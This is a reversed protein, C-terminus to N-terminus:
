LKAELEAVRAMLGKVAAMLYANDMAYDRSLKHGAPAFGDSDKFKVDDNKTALVADSRGNAMDEQAIFGAQPRGDMEYTRPRAKNIWAYAQEASLDKVESKLRADSTTGFATAAVAGACLISCGLGWTGVVQGSTIMYASNGNQLVGANCTLLGTIGVTTSFTANNRALSNSINANTVVVGSDNLNTTATVNAATVNGAFGGNGSNGLTFNTVTFGSNTIRFPTTGSGAIITVGNAADYSMVNRQTAGTDTGILWANNPLLFSAATLQANFNGSTASIAARTTGGIAMGNITGGTLTAASSSFANAGFTIAGASLNLGSSFAGSTGSIAGTSTLSGVSVAGSFAGTTGIDPSSWNGAGSGPLHYNRISSGFGTAPKSAAGGFLPAL